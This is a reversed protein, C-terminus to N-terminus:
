AASEPGAGHGAEADANGGLGRFARQCKLSKGGKASRVLARLGGAENCPGIAANVACGAATDTPRKRGIAGDELQRGSALERIQGVKVRISGVAEVGNCEH